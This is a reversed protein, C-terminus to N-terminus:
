VTAFQVFFFHVGQLLCAPARWRELRAMRQDQERAGAPGDGAYRAKHRAFAVDNECDRPMWLADARV